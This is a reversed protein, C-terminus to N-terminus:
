QKYSFILASFYLATFFSVSNFIRQSGREFNLQKPVKSFIFYEIAAVFVISFFRSTIPNFFPWISFYYVFTRLFTSIVWLLVIKKTKKFSMMM